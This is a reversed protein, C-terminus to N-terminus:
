KHLISRIILYLGGIASLIVFYGYKGFLKRKGTNYFKYDELIPMLQERMNDEERKHVASIVNHEAIEKSVRSVEKTILEVAMALRLIEKGNNRYNDLHKELKEDIQNCREM